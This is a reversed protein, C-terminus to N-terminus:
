FSNWFLFLQCRHELSTLYLNEEHLSVL